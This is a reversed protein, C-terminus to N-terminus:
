SMPALGMKHEKINYVSYHSQLFPIGLIWLYENVPMWQVECIGTADDHYIYDKPKMSFRKGGLIFHFSKLSSLASCPIEGSLANAGIRNSMAALTFPDGYLLSSGTDLLAKRSARAADAPTLAGSANASNVKDAGYLLNTPEDGYFIGEMTTAWFFDGYVDIWSLKNGFSRDYSGFTIEGNGKDTGKFLKVGFLPEKLLNEQVMTDVPARVGGESGGTFGLGFLGDFQSRPLEFTRDETSTAAFSQNQLVVSGAVQVTERAINGAIFGTGYQIQIKKETAHYTASSRQDFRRHETCASSHCEQGPVWINSSGTDFVVSFKQPPSGIGIYGYYYYDKVNTLSATSVDAAMQVQSPQIQAFSKMRRTRELRQARKSEPDLGNKLFLPIKFSGHMDKAFVVHNKADAQGYVTSDQEVVPDLKPMGDEDTQVAAGAATRLMALAGLISLVKM